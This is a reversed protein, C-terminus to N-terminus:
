LLDDGNTPRNSMLLCSPVNPLDGLMGPDNMSWGGISIWTELGPYDEKLATFRPYLETDAASMPAVKFSKPDIFAFAFNLHTYAGVPIQEPTM